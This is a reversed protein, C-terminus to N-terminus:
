GQRGFFRMFEVGERIRRGLMRPHRAAEGLLAAIKTPRFYFQRYLTEVARAIEEGGLHPYAIASVQRGTGDILAPEDRLWGADRAQRYLATGPYPSALSM